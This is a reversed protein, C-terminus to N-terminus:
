NNKAQKNLTSLENSLRQYEAINDASNPLKTLADLRRQIKDIKNRRFEEKSPLWKNIITFIDGFGM